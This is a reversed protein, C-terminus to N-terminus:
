AIPDDVYPELLIKVIDNKGALMFERTHSVLEARMSSDTQILNQIIDKDLATM